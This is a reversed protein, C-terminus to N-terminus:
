YAEKRRLNKVVKLVLWGVLAIPLITFVMFSLLSMLMAFLGMILKLAVVVAVIGGTAMMMKPLMASM